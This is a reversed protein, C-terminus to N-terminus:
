AEGSLIDRLTQAMRVADSNKLYIVHINGSVGPQDLSEILQRAAALRSPNDSRVLLSNVRSDAVVTIRQSADPAAAAGADGGLARSVTTALDLASAYRLPMVMVNGQPVDIAEIIQAIRALNEAYDTVVLSNNGAYASVPNNPSVLPRIIPLLQTASE